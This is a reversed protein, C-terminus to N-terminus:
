RECTCCSRGANCSPCIWRRRKRAAALSGDGCLHDLVQDGHYRGASHTPTPVREHARRPTFEYVWGVRFLVRDSAETPGFLGLRKDVPTVVHALRRCARSTRPLIGLSGATDRWGRAADIASRQAASVTVMMSAGGVVSGG